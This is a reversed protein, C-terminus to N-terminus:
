SVVHLAGLLDQFLGTAGIGHLVVARLVGLLRM